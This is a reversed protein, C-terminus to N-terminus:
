REVVFRKVFSGGSELEFRLFYLGANLTSCDVQFSEETMSAVSSPVSQGLQNYVSIYKISGSISPQAFQISLKSSAPNPFLKVNELYVDLDRIGVADKYVVV